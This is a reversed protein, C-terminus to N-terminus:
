AYFIGKAIPIAILTKQLTFQRATFIKFTYAAWAIGSIIMVLCM